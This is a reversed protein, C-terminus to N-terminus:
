QVLATLVIVATYYCICTMLSLLDYHQVPVFSWNLYRSFIHETFTTSHLQLLLVSRFYIPNELFELIQFERGFNYNDCIPYKIKM